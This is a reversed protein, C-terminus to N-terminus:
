AAGGKEAEVGNEQASKPAWKGDVLRCHDTLACWYHHRGQHDWLPPQTAALFRRIIERGIAEALVGADNDEIPAPNAQGIHWLTALYQDTYNDLADTDINFIISTKM